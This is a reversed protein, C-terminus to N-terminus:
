KDKYTNYAARPRLLSLFLYILIFSLSRRWYKTKKAAVLVEKIANTGYVEIVSVSLLIIATNRHDDM